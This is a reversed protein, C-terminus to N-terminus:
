QTTPHTTDTKLMQEEVYDFAAIGFELVACTRELMTEFELKLRVGEQQNEPSMLGWNPSVMMGKLRNINDLIRVVTADLDDCTRMANELNFESM